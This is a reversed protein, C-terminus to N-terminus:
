KIEEYYDSICACQCAMYSAYGLKCVLHLYGHADQEIEHNVCTDCSKM